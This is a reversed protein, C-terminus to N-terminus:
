FNRNVVLDKELRAQKASSDCGKNWYKGNFKPHGILEERNSDSDINTSRSASNSNM